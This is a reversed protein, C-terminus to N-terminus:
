LVIRKNKAVSEFAAQVIHIDKLGEEGNVLIPGKGLIALADNDMQLSQQMGRIATLIEGDSTKGSVGSYNSMPELEYWGESAKVRALNYNKVVSTACDATVGNPFELTFNTTEDVEKFIHPHSKDHTATIAIPEMASLFRAGNVPYVGMDYMAGGGMAKQMRWNDQPFGKGAYGARTIISETQGFKKELAYSNLKRTNPEHQMRYGVTLQVKNKRCVNIMQQCQAVTMAMPKECWVHKGANAGIEAYKLHLSTPVVVYVVDIDPNNALEHMNDYTYTNKDPISYAKQWKPIKSPSGTVIGKLECYKTAQLAPALITESYNGLGVLAVGVKRQSSALAIGHQGMSSLLIGAGLSKIFHRRDLKNQRNLTNTM